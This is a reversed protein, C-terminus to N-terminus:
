NVSLATPKLNKEEGLPALLSHRGVCIFTSGSTFAIGKIFQSVLSM